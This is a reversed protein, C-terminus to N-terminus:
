IIMEAASATTVTKQYTPAHSVLIGSLAMEVLRRVQVTATEEDAAALGMEFGLFESYFAEQVRSSIMEVMFHATQLSVEPRLEGRAMAARVQDQFYPQILSIREYMYDLHPLNDLHVHKMYFRFYEPHERQIFRRMFLLYEVLFDPLSAFDRVRMEQQFKAIWVETLHELLARFLDEKSSFYHYALGVALGARRAIDRMSVAFYGRDIFAGAAADLIRRRTELRQRSTDRTREKAGLPAAKPRKRTSKVPTKKTTLPV